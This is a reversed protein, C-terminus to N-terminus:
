VQQLMIGTDQEFKTLIRACIDTNTLSHLGFVFIQSRFMSVLISIVKFHKWKCNVIGVFAISDEKDAITLNLCHFSTNFSSWDGFIKKFMNIHSRPVSLTVMITMNLQKLTTCCFNFRGIMKTLLFNWKFYTRM